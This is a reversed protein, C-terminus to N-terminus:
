CFSKLWILYNDMTPILGKFDFNGAFVNSNVLTECQLREPMQRSVVRMCLIITVLSERSTLKEEDWNAYIKYFDLMESLVVYFQAINMEEGGLRAM